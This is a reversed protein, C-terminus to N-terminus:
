LCPEYGLAEYFRRAAQWAAHTELWIQRYGADWAATELHSMLVRALGQRRADPSVMLWHVVPKAGAPEGRMALTVSGALRLSGGTITKVEALWMRAPNWWWKQLFE